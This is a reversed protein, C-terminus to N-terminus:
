KTIRRGTDQTGLIALTKPNDVRSQGKLKREHKNDRSFSTITHQNFRGIDVNDTKV